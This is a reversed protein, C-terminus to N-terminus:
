RIYIEKLRMWSPSTVTGNFIIQLQILQAKQFNVGLLAGSLPSGNGSVSTESSITGGSTFAQELDTRYNITISEGAVLQSALEYEIQQFTKKELFTGIRVADTEIIASSNTIPSTGSFDISNTTTAGTTQAWAAIYQPGNANQATIEQGAFIVPAFGNFGHTSYLSSATEMRLALGTDQNVFYSMSPAFSWVGGCNGTHTATQDKISFFVRGRLYMAGGWVLYPDQTFNVSGAVYDPVTMIPVVSSGNTLYINGKSGTFILVVNNIALLFQVNAEPMWMLSTPAAGSATSNQYTPYVYLNNQQGGVVLSLGNGAPIMSIRTAADTPSMLYNADVYNYTAATAPNFVQGTKQQIIGIGPGDTFYIVQDNGLISKHQYGGNYNFVKWSVFATGTSPWHNLFCVGSYLIAADTFILMYDASIKNNADTAYMIQISGCANQTTFDAVGGASTGSPTIASWTMTTSLEAGTGPTMSTGSVWIIGNQDIIFYRYSNGTPGGYNEVCYDMPIGMNLTSFTITGTGAGATIQTVNFDSFLKFSTGQVLPIVFYYNNVTVGTNGSSATVKIWTGAAINGTYGFSQSLNGSTMSGGTIAPQDVRVRNYALSAEGQVSSINIGKIDAIGEFPSAAIGKEWGNIIIEGKKNFKHSM